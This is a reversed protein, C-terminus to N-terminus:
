KVQPNTNLTFNNNIQALTNGVTYLINSATQIKDDSIINVRNASAM